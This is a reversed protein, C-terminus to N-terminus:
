SSLIYHMHAFYAICLMHCISTDAVPFLNFMYDLSMCQCCRRSDFMGPVGAYTYLVCVSTCYSRPEALGAQTAPHWPDFAGATNVFTSPHMGPALLPSLRIHLYSACLPSHLAADSRDAYQQAPKRCRYRRYSKGPMSTVLM